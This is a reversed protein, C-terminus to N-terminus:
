RVAKEPLKGTFGYAAFVGGAFRGTTMLEVGCTAGDSCYLHKHTDPMRPREPIRPLVPIM